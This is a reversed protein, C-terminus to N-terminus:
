IQVATGAARRTVEASARARVQVGLVPTPKGLSWMVASDHGWGM